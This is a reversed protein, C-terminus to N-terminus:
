KYFNFSDIVTAGIWYYFPAKIKNLINNYPNIWTSLGFVYNENELYLSTFTASSSICAFRTGTKTLVSCSVPRSNKQIDLSEIKYFSVEVTGPLPTLINNVYPLEQKPSIYFIFGGFDGHAFNGKDFKAKSIVDPTIFWAAPYKFSFGFEENKYTKWTSTWIKLGLIFLLILGVLIGMVEILIKEWKPLKNWSKKM